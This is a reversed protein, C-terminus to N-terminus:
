SQKRMFLNRRASMAKKSAGTPLLKGRPNNILDPNRFDDRLLQDDAFLVRAGSLRALAIVHEDNSRCSNDSILKDTEAEVLSDNVRTVGPGMMEEAIWIRFTVNKCLERM